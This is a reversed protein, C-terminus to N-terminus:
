IGAPVWGFGLFLYLIYWWSFLGHIIAWLVSNHISFSWWAAIGGGAFYVPYALCGGCGTKVPTVDKNM